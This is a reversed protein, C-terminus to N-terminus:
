ITAIVEVEILVDKPLRAVEVCSRAPKHERFYSGYVENIRPFDNMDKIFVTAKVVKELSSGAEELVAKVNAFVQHTQEEVGGTVLEGAPTLPIQGSSFFLNGVIIGQSYPGIAAPAENTHVVKM